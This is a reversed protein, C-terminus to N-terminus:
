WGVKFCFRCSHYPGARGRGDSTDTGSAVIGSSEEDQTIFDPSAAATDFFRPNHAAM